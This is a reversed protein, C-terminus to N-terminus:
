NVRTAVMSCGLELTTTNVSIAQQAFQFLVTGAVTVNVTIDWKIFDLGSSTSISAFSATSATLSNQATGNVTGNYAGFLGTFNITATGAVLSFKIGGTGLTPEHFSLLLSIRHSGVPLTLTMATALTTNSTATLAAPMFAVAVGGIGTPGVAVGNIFIGTANVTGLGQGGGTPNGLVFSGDGLIVAFQTAGAANLWDQCVDGANTGSTVHLGFSNGASTNGGIRVAYNSAIGNVALATGSSPVNIVVAGSTGITLRPNATGQTSLILGTNSADIYVGGAVNGIELQFGNTNNRAVISGTAATAQVRIGESGTVQTITVADGATPAAININGAPAISIGGGGGSLTLVNTTAVNVLTWTALAGQQYSLLTSSVANPGTMAVAIAPAANTNNILVAASVNANNVTLAVGSDPTPISWGGVISGSLRTKTATNDVLDFTGAATLGVAISWQRLGTQGDKLSLSAVNGANGVIALGAAASNPKITLTASTLDLMEVTNIAFGFQHTTVKYWGSTTETAWTLAPAANSGDVLQLPGTMPTVGTTALSQTLATAIDSMTTNAWTSSITTLTVVPNGAPLSYVGAGNRPM